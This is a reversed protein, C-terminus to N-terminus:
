KIIYIRFRLKTSIDKIKIYVSDLAEKKDKDSFHTFLKDTTKGFENLLQTM